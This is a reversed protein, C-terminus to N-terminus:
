RRKEGKNERPFKEKRSYEGSFRMGACCMRDFLIAGVSTYMVSRGGRKVDTNEAHIYAM